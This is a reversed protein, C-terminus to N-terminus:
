AEILRFEETMAQRARERHDLLKQIEKGARRYQLLAYANRLDDNTAVSTRTHTASECVMTICENVFKSLDADSGQKTSRGHQDILGLRQLYLQNKETFRITSRQDKKRPM